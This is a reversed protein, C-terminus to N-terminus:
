VTDRFFSYAIRSAVSGRASGPFYRNLDRRDPLHRSGPSYGFVTVRPLGLVTGALRTPDVSHALRRVTEVADRQDGHGGARLCLGPGALAGRAVVVPSPIEANSIGGAPRWELQMRTGPVVLRDLISLPTVLPPAEEILLEPAVIGIPPLREDEDSG